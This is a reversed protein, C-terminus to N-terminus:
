LPCIVATVIFDAILFITTNDYLAQLRALEKCDELIVQEAQGHVLLTEPKSIELFDYRTKENKGAMESIGQLLFVHVLM